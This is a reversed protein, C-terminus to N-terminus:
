QDIGDEVDSGRDVQVDPRTSSNAESLQRRGQSGAIITDLEKTLEVITNWDSTIIDQSHTLFNRLREFNNTAEEVHRRSSSRSVSRLTPDRALIQGKDSLQLCDSFKLHQNRRAREQM